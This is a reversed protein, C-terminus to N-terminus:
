IKKAEADYDLRALYVHTKWDSVDVVHHWGYVLWKGSLFYPENDIDKWSITCKAAGLDSSDHLDSDGTVTIKMRMVLNLMNLFMGRARGDIYDSYKVGLEGGNHEPIAKISTAWDNSPKKFGQKDQITVNVKDKTNADDITTEKKMSVSDIFQGSIASIGSTILKTQLPSVFNDAMLEYSLIDAGSNGKNYFYTKFDKTELDSQEKIVLEEDVSAVIWHTKKQTISASWDLLSRIFTKPDQRMMHWVNNQNDKTDTIKVNSVGYEQAVKKIVDSVKGTYAKGDGKGENLKFTPPDIAIFEIVGGEGEGHAQLSTMYATRQKTQKEDDWKLKFKVETEKNRGDKLYSKSVNTLINFYPDNITAKIIYGGNIFSSWEFAAMKDGVEEGGVNLELVARHIIQKESAM